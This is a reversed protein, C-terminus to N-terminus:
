GYKNSGWSVLRAEADIGLCHLSGCGIRGLGERFQQPWYVFRESQDSAGGCVRRRNDGFMLVDYTPPKSARRFKSLEPPTPHSIYQEDNLEGRSSLLTGSNRRSMPKGGPGFTVDMDPTKPDESEKTGSDDTEKLVNKDTSSSFPDAGPDFRVVKKARGQEKQGSDAGQAVRSKAAGKHAGIAPQRNAIRPKAV